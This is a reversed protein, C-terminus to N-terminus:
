LLASQEGRRLILKYTRGGQVMKGIGFSARHFNKENQKTHVNLNIQAHRPPLVKSLKLTNTNEAHGTSGRPESLAFGGRLRGM